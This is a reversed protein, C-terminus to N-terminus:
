IDRLILLKSAPFRDDSLGFEPTKKYKGRFCPFKPSDRPGARSQEDERRPEPMTPRHLTLRNGLIEDQDTAPMGMDMDQLAKAHPRERTHADAEDGAIDLRGIGPHQRTIDGPM